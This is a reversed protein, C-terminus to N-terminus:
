KCKGLSGANFIGQIEGASLARNFFEIEDMAASSRQGCTGGHHSIVAASTTVLLSGSRPTQGVLQGNLYVKMTFGDYTGAVHHFQGDDPVGTTGSNATTAAGSTDSMVLNIENSPTQGARDVKIVDLLYSMGAGSCGDRKSLVTDITRGPIGFNPKIWADITFENTAPLLNSNNTLTIYSNSTGDFSFALGVKGTVFAVGSANIGTNADVIDIFDEDGTWWSVLGSPATICGIENICGQVPDCSDATNPDSDDCDTPDRDAIPICLETGEFFADITCKDSDDCILEPILNCDGDKDGHALHALRANESVTITHFNAQNGPPLHCVEVQNAQAAASTSLGVLLLVLGALVALHRQLARRM